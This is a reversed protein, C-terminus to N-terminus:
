LRNQLQPFDRSQSVQDVSKLSTSVMWFYPILFIVALVILVLMNIVKGATLQKKM